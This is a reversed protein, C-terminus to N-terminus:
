TSSGLNVKDKALNDHQNLIQWFHLIHLMVNMLM